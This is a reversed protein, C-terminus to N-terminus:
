ERATCDNCLHFHVNSSKSSLNMRTPVTAHRLKSDESEVCANLRYVFIVIWGKWVDDACDSDLRAITAPAVSISTIFALCLLLGDIDNSQIQMTIQASIARIYVFDYTTLNYISITKNARNTPVSSNGPLVCLFYEKGYLSFFKVITM